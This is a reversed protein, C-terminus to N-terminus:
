SLLVVIRTDAAAVVIIIITIIIAAIVVVAVVLIKTNLCLLNNGHSCYKKMPSKSNARKAKMWKNKSKSQGSEQSISTPYSCVRGIACARVCTPGHLEHLSSSHKAFHQKLVWSLCVLHSCWSQTKVLYKRTSNLFFVDFSILCMLNSRLIEVHFLFHNKGSRAFLRFVFVNSNSPSSKFSHTFNCGGRHRQLLWKLFKLGASAPRYMCAIRMTRLCFMSLTVMISIICNHIIYNSMELPKHPSTHKVIARGYHRYALTKNPVSEM